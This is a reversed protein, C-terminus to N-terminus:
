LAAFNVLAVPVNAGGVPTSTYEGTAPDIALLWQSAVVPEPDSVVHWLKGSNFGMAVNGNFSTVYKGSRGPEQSSLRAATTINGSMADVAVVSWASVTTDATVLGPSVAYLNGDPSAHFASFTFESVDLPFSHITKAALDFTHIMADLKYLTNEDGALISVSDTKANYEAWM